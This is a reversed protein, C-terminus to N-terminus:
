REDALWLDPKTVNRKRLSSGTGIWIIRTLLDFMLFQTEPEDVVEKEPFFELNDKTHSSSITSHAYAAWKEPIIYTFNLELFYHLGYIMTPQYQKHKRDIDM